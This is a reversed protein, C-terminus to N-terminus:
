SSSSQKGCCGFFVNCALPLLDAKYGISRGGRTPRFEIPASAEILENNIFSKLNDARLFIPLQLSTEEVGDSVAKAAARGTRGIARLFGQQWLVRTGDELVACPIIISGIKLDGTHTARPLKSSWREFAANKAIETRRERTLAEARAVGGKAKPNEKIKGEM